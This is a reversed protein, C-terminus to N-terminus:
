LLNENNEIFMDIDKKLDKKMSFLLRQNKLTEENNGLNLLVGTDKSILKLVLMEVGVKNYAYHKIANYFLDAELQKHMGLSVRKGLISIRTNVKKASNKVKPIHGVKEKIRINTLLMNLKYPLLVCSSESYENGGKLDKDVEFRTISTDYSKEQLYYWRTFNQFCLWEKSVSVGRGGYNVYSTDKTNYCRNLMSLWIYHVRKDRVSNFVGYGLYGVGRVSKTNKNTVYGGKISERHTVFLPSNDFKVKFRNDGLYEHITLLNGCNQIWTSGKSMKNSIKNGM